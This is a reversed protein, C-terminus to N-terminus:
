AAVVIFGAANVMAAVDPAVWFTSAGGWSIKGKLSGQNQERWNKWFDAGPGSNKDTRFWGPPCQKPQPKNGQGGGQQGGGGWQPAAQAQPAGAQQWAPQGPYPQGPPPTVPNYNPQSMGAPPMGQQPAPAQPAPPTGTVALWAMRLRAAAPVMAEVAEVLGQPTQSRIVLMSGDPLKPSWTYTHNHPNAVVEPFASGEEPEWGSDETATTDVTDTMRNEKPIWATDARPDNLLEEASRGLAWNRAYPPTDTVVGGSVLLGVTARPTSHWVMGEDHPVVEVVRVPGLGAELVSAVRIDEATWM